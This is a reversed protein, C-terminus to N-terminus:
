FEFSQTDLLWLFWRDRALMICGWMYVGTWPGCRRSLTTHTPCHKTKNVAISRASPHHKSVLSAANINASGIINSVCAGQLFERM